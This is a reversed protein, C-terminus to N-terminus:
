KSKRTENVKVMRKKLIWSKPIKTKSGFDMDTSIQSCIWVYTKNEGVLWGIDTVVFIKEAWKDMEDKTQWQPSSEADLWEIFVLPYKRKITENARM